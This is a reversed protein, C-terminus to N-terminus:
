SAYHPAPPRPTPWSTGCVPYPTWFPIARSVAANVRRSSIPLHTGSADPWSGALYSTSLQLFLFQANTMLHAHTPLSPYVFSSGTNQRPSIHKNLFMHDLLQLLEERVTEWNATYFELSLGDIGPSKRRAGARLATLLEDYTLPQELQEAYTAPFVPHLFTQMNAVATEDLAIPQYKHSMYSVFAATIESLSAHTNGHIDTV